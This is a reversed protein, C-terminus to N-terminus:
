AHLLRVRSLAHVDDLGDDVHCLGHGHRDDHLAHLGIFLAGVQHAQATAVNLPVIEIFWYRDITKLRQDAIGPVNVGLAEEEFKVFFEMDTFEQAVVDIGIGHQVVDNTGRCNVGPVPVVDIDDAEVLLEVLGDAYGVEILAQVADLLVHGLLLSGQKEFGQLLGIVVAQVSRACQQGEILDIAAHCPEQDLEVEHIIVPVGPVEISRRSIDCADGVQM